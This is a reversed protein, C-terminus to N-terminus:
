LNLQSVYQTLELQAPDYDLEKLRSFIYAYARLNKEADTCGHMQAESCFPLHLVTKYGQLLFNILSTQMSEFVCGSTNVGGFIMETNTSSMKINCAGDVKQEFAQVDLTPDDDLEIWKWGRLEALKKIEYFRERNLNYTKFENSKIGGSM